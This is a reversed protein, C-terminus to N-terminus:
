GRPGNKFIWNEKLWKYREARKGFVFNLSIGATIMHYGAHHKSILESEPRTLYNYSYSLEVMTRWIAPVSVGVGANFGIIPDYDQSSKKQGTIVISTSHHVGAGAKIVLGFRLAPYRSIKTRIFGGFYNESFTYSTGLTDTFSPDSLNTRIEAGLQVHDFGGAIKVGCGLYNSFTKFKSTSYKTRNLSGFGELYLNQAQLVSCSLAFYVILFPKMINAPISNVYLCLGSM